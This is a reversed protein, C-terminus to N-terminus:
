ERRLPMAHEAPPAADLSEQTEYGLRLLWDGLLELSRRQEDPSLLRAWDSRAAGAAIDRTPGSFPTREVSQSRCFAAVDQHLELGLFDFIRRAETADDRVLDEYRLELYRSPALSAGFECGVAVHRTWVAHAADFSQVWPRGDAHRKRLLSSVVDRGDRVVHIFRAQPFLEAVTELSGSDAPRAYHPNKDGWFRAGPPMLTRYFDRVVGALASRLHGELQKRSAMLADTAEHLARHLWTFIRTENTIFVEPHQGLVHALYTTGSRPAGFIVIPDNAIAVCGGPAPM